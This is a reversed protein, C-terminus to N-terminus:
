VRFLWSTRGAWTRRIVVGIARLFAVLVLVGLVGAVTGASVTGDDFRPTIVDDTLRGVVVSSLVSCTAFLAAGAVATAFLRKHHRLLARVLRAAQVLRGGAPAVADPAREPETAVVSM